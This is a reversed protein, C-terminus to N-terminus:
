RFLVFLAQGEYERQYNLYMRYWKEYWDATKKDDKDECLRKVLQKGERCIYSDWASTTDGAINVLYYGLGRYTSYLEYLTQLPGEFDTLEKPPNSIKSYLRAHVIMGGPKQYKECMALTKSIDNEFTETCCVVDYKNTDAYDLVDGEVLSINDLGAEILRSRGTEICEKCRDVGVGKIDFAEGWIKLMTGYGCCLDLVTTKESLELSIGTKIIGEISTINWIFDCDQYQKVLDKYNM